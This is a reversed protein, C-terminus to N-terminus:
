AKYVKTIAETVDFSAKAVKQLGLSAKLITKPTREILTNECNKTPDRNHVM